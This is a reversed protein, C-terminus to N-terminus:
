PLFEFPGDFTGVPLTHTINHKGFCHLQLGGPELTLTNNPVEKLDLTVAHSTGPCVTTLQGAFVSTVNRHLHGAVIRFNKDANTIIAALEESNRLGQRDMLTIGSAVPPHHMALLVSRQDVDAIMKELWDLTAKSLEGHPAGDVLTDLALLTVDELDVRINIPGESPMWPMNNFAARMTERDDHNGPVAIMPLDLPEILRRFEAFEEHTGHDTLDGTVLVLDIPGIRTKCTELTELTRTLATNTDVVGNARAGPAVVHTDTFQVIRTM